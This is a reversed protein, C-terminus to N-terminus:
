RNECQAFSECCSKWRFNEMINRDTILEMESTTMAIEKAAIAIRNLLTASWRPDSVPTTEGKIAKRDRM